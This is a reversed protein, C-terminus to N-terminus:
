FGALISLAFSKAASPGSLEATSELSKSGFSWNLSEFESELSFVVGEEGSLFVLKSFLFGSLGSVELFVIFESLKTFDRSDSFCCSSSWIKTFCVRVMFCKASLM